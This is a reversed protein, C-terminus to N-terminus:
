NVTVTVTRIASVFTNPLVVLAHPGHEIEVIPASGVAAQSLVPTRITM